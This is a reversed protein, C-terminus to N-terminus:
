KLRSSKIHRSKNELDAAKKSASKQQPADFVKWFRLTEDGSASCVTTGDPSLATHLVRQTHGLLEAQRTMSPYNWVTLQNRSFGHSSVLETCSDKAWLLSCVQSETDITNLCAGSAASWFRITRDATGGGSALLNRQRPCWALAKVAATHQGLTHMPADTVTAMSTADWLRVTNDNAGSALVDGEPNWQLGCVEGEHAALLSVQHQAVRVDHNIITRDRSGSSLVHRNWSLSSVRDSHGGMERVKTQSQVDWLQVLNDSTGVALYGSGQKIWSVSAIPEHKATELLFSISGTTANWLYLSNSLAVALVNDASWDMPNLYFDDLMDPADLIKEPLSAICRTTTRGSKGTQKHVQTGVVRRSDLGGTCVPAAAKFHLVKADRPNQSWLAQSLSDMYMDQATAPALEDAAVAGERMGFTQAARESDAGRCPIYRDCEIM